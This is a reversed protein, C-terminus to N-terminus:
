AEGTQVQIVEIEQRVVRVNIWLNRSLSRVEQLSISMGQGDIVTAFMDDQAM